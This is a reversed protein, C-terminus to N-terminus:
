ARMGGVSAPTRRAMENRQPHQCFFGHGFRLAYRCQFAHEVRCDVYDAFGAPEARCVSVDPLNRAASLRSERHAEGRTWVPQAAAQDRAPLPEAAMFQLTLTRV